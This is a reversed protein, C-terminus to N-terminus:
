QKDVLAQLKAIMIQLVTKQLGQDEGAEAAIDTAVQKAAADVKPELTALAGQKSPDFKEDLVTRLEEKIIQKLQSKTIKM